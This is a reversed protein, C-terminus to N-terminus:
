KGPGRSYTIYERGGGGLCSPSRGRGRRRTGPLYDQCAKQAKDGGLVLCFCLFFDKSSQKMRKQDKKLLLLPFTIEYSLQLKEIESFSSFAVNAADM